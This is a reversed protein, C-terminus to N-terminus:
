SIAWLIMESYFYKFKNGKKEGRLFILFRKKRIIKMNKLPFFYGEPWDNKGLNKSM